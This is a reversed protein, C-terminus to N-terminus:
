ATVPRRRYKWGRAAALSGVAILGMIASIPMPDAPLIGFLGSSADAPSTASLGESCASVPGETTALAFSAEPDDLSSDSSGAIVAPARPSVFGVPGNDVRSFEGDAIPVGLAMTASPSTSDAERYTTATGSGEASIWLPSSTTSSIGLPNNLTADTVQALAPANSIVGIQTDGALSYSAAIAPTFALLALSRIIKYM